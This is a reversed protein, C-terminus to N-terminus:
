LTRCSISGIATLLSTVDRVEIDIKSSHEADLKDVFKIGNIKVCSVANDDSDSDDYNGGSTMNCGSIGVNGRPAPVPLHNSSLRASVLSPDESVFINIKNRFIYEEEFNDLFVKKINFSQM